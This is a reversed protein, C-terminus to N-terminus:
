PSLRPRDTTWAAAADGECGQVSVVMTSPSVGIPGAANRGMDAANNKMRVESFRGNAHILVLQEIHQAAPNLCLRPVDTWDHLTWAGATKVLALLRRASAAADTPPHSSCPSGNCDLAFTYGNHFTFSKVTPDSFSFREFRASLANVMVATSDAQCDGTDVSVSAQRPTTCIQTGTAGTLLAIDRALAQRPVLHDWAAFSGAADSPAADWLALVFAQWTGELDPHAAHMALLAHPESATPAAEDGGCGALVGLLLLRAIGRVLFAHNKM